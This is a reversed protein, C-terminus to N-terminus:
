CKMKGGVNRWTHELVSGNVRYALAHWANQSLLTSVPGHLVVVVVVVVTLRHAAM